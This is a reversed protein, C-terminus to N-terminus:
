WFEKIRAIKKGRFEFLTAKDVDRKVMVINLGHITNLIKIPENDEYRGAKFNRVFGNYLDQRSYEGGYGEHIYVFDDTVKKFKREIDDHEKVVDFFLNVLAIKEDDTITVKKSGAHLNTTFLTTILVALAMLNKM